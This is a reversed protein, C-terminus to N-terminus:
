LSVGQYHEVIKRIVDINPVSSGRVAFGAVDGEMQLEFITRELAETTNAFPDIGLDPVDVWRNSQQDYHGGRITIAAGSLVYDDRANASMWAPLTKGQELLNLAWKARVLIRRNLITRADERLAVHEPSLSGMFCYGGIKRHPRLPSKQDPISAVDVTAQAVPAEIPVIPKSLDFKFNDSM